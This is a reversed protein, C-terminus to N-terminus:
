YAASNAAKLSPALQAKFDAVRPKPCHRWASSIVRVAETRDLPKVLVDHAGLNLAESWLYEDALRSIVILLPTERLVHVGELVSKWDGLPFDRETIILGVSEEQLMAFAASLSTATHLYWRQERFLSGLVEHDREDPSVLLATQDPKKQIRNELSRRTM